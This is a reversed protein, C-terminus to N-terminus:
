KKPRGSQKKVLPPNLYQLKSDVCFQKSPVPGITFNYARLYAERHYCADVYQEFELKRSQICAVTHVCPIGSLQFHGYTYTKMELNVVNTRGYGDVELNGNGGYIAVCNRPKIKLKELKEHINPCLTGGHKLMGERKTILRQMLRRRIWELMTIIPESRIKLTYDNWSENMNNVCTNSWAAISFHARFWLKPSLRKFWGAATLKDGEQPDARELNALRCAQKLEFHEKRFEKEANFYSYGPISEDDSGIGKDFQNEDDKVPENWDEEQENAHCSDKLGSTPHSGVEHTQNKVQKRSKSQQDQQQHKSDTQKKSQAQQQDLDVQKRVNAQLNEQQQELGVRVSNASKLNISAQTSGQGNLGAFIDNDEPRELAERLWDPLDSYDPIVDDEEGDEYVIKEGVIEIPDPGKEAYIHMEPLGEYCTTLLEIDVDDKISVVGVDIDHFPISYWFNMNTVGREITDYLKQFEFPSLEDPDWGCFVRVYEGTYRIRSKWKFYGGYHM